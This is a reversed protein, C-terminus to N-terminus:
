EPLGTKRLGITFRDEDPQNIYQMLTDNYICNIQKFFPLGFIDPAFLARSDTILNTKALVFMCDLM